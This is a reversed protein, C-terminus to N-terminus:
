GDGWEEDPGRSAGPILGNPRALIVNSRVVAVPVLFVVGALSSLFTVLPHGIASAIGWSAACAGFCMSSFTLRDLEAGTIEDMAEIRRPM